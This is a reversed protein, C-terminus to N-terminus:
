RVPEIANVMGFTNVKLLWRSGIECRTFNQQNSTAYTYQGSETNFICRYVEERDGERRSSTLTPNPWSPSFDNGSLSVEDVERWEDLTYKCFNEYVEYKCDQVVEGFGSGTDVTYPTGCVEKANSAPENQTRRVKQTCSGVVGEPPIEDRWAEHEVPVLEEIEITRTWNVSEVTGTVEETRNALIFYAGCAAACLLLILVGVGGLLGRRSRQQSAKAPAAKPAAPEPRPQTLSAGCQVCKPADPNNPTGCSPCEIPQAAKDRHAGLVQGSKRRAGESLDAGCQSCNAATAPNRTGCYHCHIDPGAEAQAIKEEDAIIEEQAPQEFEVDDPQPMGCSACTRQPGPNKTGCSPCTWHLEVYGLSKKTM